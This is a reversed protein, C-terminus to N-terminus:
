LLEELFAERVIDMIKETLTELESPQCKYGLTEFLEDLIADYLEEKV